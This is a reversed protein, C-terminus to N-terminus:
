RPGRARLHTRMLYGGVPCVDGLPRTALGRRPPGVDPAGKGSGMSGGHLGLIDGWEEEAERKVAPAAPNKIKLWHDSCGSRHSSLRKSVIGECGLQWAHKYIIAGDGEFHTNFVIGARQGNLLEALAHKRHEIPM